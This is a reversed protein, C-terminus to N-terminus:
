AARATDTMRAENAPAAQSAPPTAQTAPEVASINKRISVLVDHQGKLALLERELQKTRNGVSHLNEQLKRLNEVRKDLQVQHEKIAAELPNLAARLWSETDRRTAEFVQRAEAVLSAYFNPVLFHKETLIQKPHHCYEITTQRLHHIALSHKELNLMPPTLTEFGATDQFDVYAFQVLGLIERSFKLIRDSQVAFHAFLGQMNKM